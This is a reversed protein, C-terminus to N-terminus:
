HYQMIQRFNVGCMKEYDDLSRVSGITYPGLDVNGVGFVSYIRDREKLQSEINKQDRNFRTCSRSYLHWNWTRHPAYIDYGHTWLRVGMAIEDGYFYMDPDYPVDSHFSGPAFLSGGAIFKGSSPLNGETFSDAVFVFFGDDSVRNFSMNYGVSLNDFFSDNVPADKMKSYDPPYCSLVHPGAPCSEFESIAFTDWHKCFRMHSDTVHIYDEGSYYMSCLHRAYGLGKADNKPVHIVNCGYSCLKKLVDMDDDQYCIFIHVRDPFDANSVASEVTKLLEPDCYSSIELAITKDRFDDIGDVISVLEYSTFLNLDYM